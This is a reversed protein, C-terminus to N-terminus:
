ANLGIKSAKFRSLKKPAPTTPALAADTSSPDSFNTGFSPQEARDAPQPTFKSHSSESESLAASHSLANSVHSPNNTIGSRSKLISSKPATKVEPPGENRFPVEVLSPQQSLNLINPLDLSADSELHTQPDDELKVQGTRAKEMWAMLESGAKEAAMRKEEDMGLVELRSKLLELEEATLEDDLETFDEPRGPIQHVAAGMSPAPGEIIPLAGYLKGNVVKEDGLCEPNAGDFPPLPRGTKFRSQGNSTRPVGPAQVRTDLPVWESEDDSGPAQDGGLPGTGRGLGLGQRKTHYELAAQRLDLATQIDLDEPPWSSSGEADDEDESWTSSGDDLEDSDELDYQDLGSSEGDEQEHQSATNQDVQKSNSGSGNQLSRPLLSALRPNLYANKGNVDSKNPKPQKTSPISITPIPQVPPREVVDSLVIGPSPRPAVPSVASPSKPSNLYTEPAFTVSKKQPPKSSGPDDQSTPKDTRSGCLISPPHPPDDLCATPHHDAPQEVKQSTSPVSLSLRTQFINKLGDLGTKGWSKLDEKEEKSSSSQRNTKALNLATEVEQGLEGPTIFEEASPGDDLQTAEEAAKNKLEELEEELELQDLIQSIHPPLQNSNTGTSEDTKPRSVTGCSTTSSSGALPYTSSSKTSHVPQEPPLEEQIDMMVLGEENLIEDKENLSWGLPLNDNPESSTAIRGHEKSSPLAPRPFRIPRVSSNPTTSM